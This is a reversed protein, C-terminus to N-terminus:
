NATDSSTTIQQRLRALPSASGGADSLGRRSHHDKKHVKLHETLHKIRATLLAIKFRPHALTMRPSASHRGSVTWRRTKQHSYLNWIKEGPTLGLGMRREVRLPIARRSSRLLTTEHVAVLEGLVDTTVSGHLIVAWRSM